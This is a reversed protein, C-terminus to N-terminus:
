RAPDPAQRHLIRYRGVREVLPYAATAMEIARPPVVPQGRYIRSIGSLVVCDYAAREFPEYLSSEPLSGAEIMQLHLVPYIVAPRRLLANLGPDDSYCLHGRENIRAAVAARSGSLLQSRFYAVDVPHGDRVWRAGTPLCAVALAALVVYPRVTPPADPRPGRAWILVLLLGFSAPELFYYPGSGARASALGAGLLTAAWFCAVAAGSSWASTEADRFLRIVALVPVSLLALVLPDGEARVAAWVHDLGAAVKAAGGLGALYVGESASDLVLVTAAVITVQAGAMWAARLWQRRAAHVLGVAGVLVLGTAKVHFAVAPLLALAVLSGRDNPRVALLWCAAASLFLIWNDPRFSVSHQVLAYTGLWAAAGVTALAWSVRMRRGLDGLLVVAGLTLLVSIFRGVGYLQTAELELARGVLGVPAHTLAGHVSPYFPPETGASFASEGNMFRLAFYVKGAEGITNPGDVRLARNLYEVNWAARAVLVVAVFLWLLGKLSAWPAPGVPRPARRATAEQGAAAEGGAATVGAQGPRHDVPLLDV